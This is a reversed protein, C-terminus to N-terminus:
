REHPPKRPVDNRREIDRRHTLCGVEQDALVIESGELTSTSDHLRRLPRDMAEVPALASAVIHREHHPNFAAAEQSMHHSRNGARQDLDAKSAPRGAPHPLYEVAPRAATGSGSGRRGAKEEHANQVSPSAPFAKAEATDRPIM